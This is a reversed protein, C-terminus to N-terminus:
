EPLKLPAEVVVYISAATAKVQVRVQLNDKDVGELDLYQVPISVWDASNNITMPKANQSSLVTKGKEWGVVTSNDSYLPWKKMEYIEIVVYCEIDSFTVPKEGSDLFQFKVVVNSATTESTDLKLSSVLEPERIIPEWVPDHGEVVPTETPPTISVPEEPQTSPAVQSTCGLLSLILALSCLLLLGRM